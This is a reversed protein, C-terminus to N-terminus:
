KSRFSVGGRGTEDSHHSSTPHIEPRVAGSPRSGIRGSNRNKGISFGCLDAHCECFVRGKDNANSAEPKRFPGKSPFCNLPNASKGGANRRIYGMKM